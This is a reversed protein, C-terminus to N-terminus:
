QFVDRWLERFCNACCKFKYSVYGLMMEQWYDAGHQRIQGGGAAAGASLAPLQRQQLLGGQLTVIHVKCCSVPNYRLKVVVSQNVPGACPTSTPSRTSTTATRASTTWPPTSPPTMGAGVSTLCGAMGRVVVFLLRMVLSTGWGLGEDMWGSRGASSTHPTLRTNRCCRSSLIMPPSPAPGCWWAPSWPWSSACPPWRWVTVAPWWRYWIDLPSSIVVAFLSVIVEAHILYAPSTVSLSVVSMGRSVMRTVRHDAPIQLILPHERTHCLDTMINIDEAHWRSAQCTMGWVRM